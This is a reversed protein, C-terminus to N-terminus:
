QKTLGTKKEMFVDWIITFMPMAQDLSVYKEFTAIADDAMRNKYYLTGLELLAKADRPDLEIVKKFNAIAENAKGSKTYSLALM